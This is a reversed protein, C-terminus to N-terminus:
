HPKLCWSPSNNHISGADDLIVNTSLSELEVVMITRGILWPYNEDSADFIIFKGDPSWSPNRHCVPSDTIQISDSGDVNVVNLNCDLGTYAIRTNDHSWSIRGSWVDIVEAEEIRTINTGEPSALYIHFIDEKLEEDYHSYDLFAINRGDPSWAPQRVDDDWNIWRRQSAGKSSIIYGTWSAEAAVYVIENGDPSFSAMDEFFNFNTLQDIRSNIRNYSFIHSESWESDINSSFSIQKGDLSCIPSSVRINGEVLTSIEDGNVNMSYIGDARDVRNLSRFVIEYDPFNLLLEPPETQPPSPSPKELKTNTVEPSPTSQESLSTPVQTAIGSLEQDPAACSILFLLIPLLFLKNM